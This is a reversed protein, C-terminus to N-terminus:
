DVEVSKGECIQFDFHSKKWGYFPCWPIQMNGYVQQVGLIQSISAKVADDVNRSYFVESKQFNISQVYASEYM